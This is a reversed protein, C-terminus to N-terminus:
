GDMYGSADYVCEYYSQAKDNCEGDDTFYDETDGYYDEFEECSSNEALCEMYADFQDECDYAEAYENMGRLEERCAREDEKNGGLCENRAECYKRIDCGAVFLAAVALVCFLLKKDNM